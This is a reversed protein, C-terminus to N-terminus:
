TLAPSAAGSVLLRLARRTRRPSGTAVPSAGERGSPAPGLQTEGTTRLRAAFSPTSSPTDLPGVGAPDDRALVHLAGAALRGGATTM